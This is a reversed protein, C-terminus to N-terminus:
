VFCLTRRFQAAGAFIGKTTSNSKALIRNLQAWASEERVVEPARTKFIDSLTM